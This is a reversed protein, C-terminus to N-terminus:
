MFCSPRQVAAGPAPTPEELSGTLALQRQLEKEFEDALQKETLEQKTPEELVGSEEAELSAMTEPQKEFYQHFMQEAYSPRAAEEGDSESLASTDCQRLDSTWEVGNYELCNGELVLTEVDLLFELVPGELDNYSLDLVSLQTLRALSAPLEGTFQNSSLVLERLNLLEGLEDPIPGSLQNDHLFLAELSPLAGISPPLWGALGMESCDLYEMEAGIAGLDDPLCLGAPLLVQGSQGRIRLLGAPAYGCLPNGELRVSRLHNMPPEGLSTHVMGTLQNNALALVRLQELRSLTDPLPGTLACGCLNLERLHALGALEAPLRGVIGPNNSLNLSRLDSLKTVNIPVSGSLGAAPLALRFIRSYRVDVGTCDPFQNALVLELAEDANHPLEDWYQLGDAKHCGLAVSIDRLATWAESLKEAMQPDATGQGAFATALSPPRSVMSTEVTGIESMTENPTGFRVPQRDLKSICDNILDRFEIREEHSYARLAFIRGVHPAMHLFIPYMPLRTHMSVGQEPQRPITVRAVEALMIKGKLKYQGTILERDTPPAPNQEARRSERAPGSYYEIHTNLLLFVRSRYKDWFSPGRKQLWGTWVVSAAHHRQHQPDREPVALFFSGTSRTLAM